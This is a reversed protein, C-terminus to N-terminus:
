PRSATAHLLRHLVRQIGWYEIEQSFSFVALRGHRAQRHYFHLVLSSSPNRDFYFENALYQWAAASSWFPRALPLAAPPGPANRLAAAHTLAVAESAAWTSASREM